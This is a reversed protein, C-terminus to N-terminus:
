FFYLPFSGSGVLFPPILIIVNIAVITEAITIGDITLLILVSMLAFSLLKIVFVAALIAGIMVAMAIKVIPEVNM